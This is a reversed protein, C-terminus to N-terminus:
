EVIITVKKEHVPDINKEWSRQQTFHVPVIGKKKATITFVEDVGAGMKKQTKKEPKGFEKSIKICDTNDPLTYNWVYGATALGKLTITTSEGEKLKIQDAIGSSM